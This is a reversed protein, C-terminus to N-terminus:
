GGCQGNTSNAADTFQVDEPDEYNPATKFSLVGTAEVISFQSGDADEVIGYGTISDESDADSASVTVIAATSNEEFSLPSIDAFVPVQNQATMGVGSESWEGIGEENEARVQIDYSTSHTLDDITYALPGGLSSTWVDEQLTWNNDDAKDADSESTLIYRVDYATISPGTNDPTTWEMKLSNLTAEAITPIAPPEPAEGLQNSVTVTVTQTATLSVLMRGVRRRSVIVIYENDGAANVPNTVAVDTPVEYNPAAIFSLVGTAKVISFQAGDADEVIGYGTISDDADADSASVTVIAATSNEAVTIPSVEAFVPAHNQITMGVGSDSWEGTGEDNEARVQIDYSTSHALNDMTYALPGDVTSTWVGEKLTWNNDDTKDADSESSFIYRVDYATIAPGTNDPETWQMKLSNLTAEAITPTAPVGPAEDVDTVTVTITQTQTLERDDTGSTATVIVIYENNGAANDNASNAADTFAVDTPAEYNPPADFSLVGTAEVISFQEGDADMLLAM